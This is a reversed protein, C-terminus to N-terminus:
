CYCSFKPGHLSLSPLVWRASLIRDYSFLLSHFLKTELSPLDHWLAEQHKCFLVDVLNSAWCFLVFFSTFYNSCLDQDDKTYDIKSSWWLYIIQLKLFHSNERGCSQPILKLLQYKTRHFNSDHFNLDFASIATNPNIDSSGAHFWFFFWWLLCPSM